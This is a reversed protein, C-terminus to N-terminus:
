PAYRQLAHALKAAAQPLGIEVGVHRCRELDLESLTVPATVPLDRRLRAVAATTRATAEDRRLNLLTKAGIVQRLEADSAAFISDLDGFRALLKTATVTGIGEVGPLNDSPEGRLAALDAYQAPTLGKEAQLSDVTVRKEDPTLVQLRGELLQYADRDSTLVTVDWGRALAATAASALVDDAEWDQVGCVGLGLQTLASPAWGLQSALEPVPASRTGKYLPQMARRSPCGGPLDFAVLLHTPQEAQIAKAIQIVTGHVAWIPRGAHSLGSRGLAHHARYLLNTGDVALVHYPETM